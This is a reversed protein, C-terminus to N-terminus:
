DAVTEVRANWAPVIEQEFFSRLGSWNEKSTAYFLRRREKAVAKVRDYHTHSCNPKIVIVIDAGTVIGETNRDVAFGDLYHPEGGFLTVGDRYWPWNRGGVILVRPKGVFRVSPEFPEQGSRESLDARGARQPRSEAVDAADSEHVKIIIGRVRGDRVESKMYAVTLVDGQAGDRDLLDGEPVLVELDSVKVLCYRDRIQQVFGVAEVRDPNSGGRAHQITFFYKPQGSSYEGDRTAEVLDGHQMRTAMAVSEFVPIELGTDTVLTGGRLNRRFTGVYVENEPAPLGSAHATKPEVEEICMPEEQQREPRDTVVAAYGQLDFFLTVTKRLEM